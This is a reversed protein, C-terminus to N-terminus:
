VSPPPKGLSAKAARYAARLKNQQKGYRRELELWGVREVDIAHVIALGDELTLPSRPRVTPPISMRAERDDAVDFCL